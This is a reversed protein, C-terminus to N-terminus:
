NQIIGSFYLVGILAAATFLIKLLAAALHESCLTKKTIKSYFAPREGCIDCESKDKRYTKSM